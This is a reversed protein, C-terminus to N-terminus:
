VLFASGTGTPETESIDLTFKSGINANMANLIIRLSRATRGQKGIVAGLDAKDVCIRITQGLDNSLITSTVREPSRVLLRIVEALVQEARAMEEM